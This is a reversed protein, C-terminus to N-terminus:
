PKREICYLNKGTRIFLAGGAAVISSNSPGEGMPITALVEFASGTALVVATGEESFCYVKGDAGTPSAYFIERVGLKGQWIKEGTAPQYCTMMQRDGDLVFLKGQYYLPTCVDPVFQTTKWVVRESDPLAAPGDRLAVLMERKPGCAFVLGPASVPSPVIRGGPNKKVNLGSFRWIEEGDDPRHATVCDAGALVIEPGQPGLRPVPTTYAEMAEEPAQHPREKAWLTRGSLPDICILVSKRDPRTDRAHEYTSPNRQLLPVYLKGEYLLPSAGYLFLVAFTGFEDKLQRHWLEKGAFDFAAFDSTGFLAYVRTGDTVASCSAMNNKGIERNGEGIVRNWRVAGTQRDVCFLHLRKEEDPSPVFVSDNWVIPTAGSKGPLGAKWSVNETKSWTTPLNTETTAGNLLPGRWQPWNEASAILCQMLGCLCLSWKLDPFSRTRALASRTRM